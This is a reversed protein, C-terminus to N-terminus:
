TFTLLMEEKAKTKARSVHVCNKIACMLRFISKNEWIACLYLCVLELSSFLLLAECNLRKKNSHPSVASIFQDSSLTLYSIFVIKVLLRCSECKELM